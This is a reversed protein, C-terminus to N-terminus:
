FLQMKKIFANGYTEIVEDVHNKQVDSKEESKQIGKLVEASLDAKDKKTLSDKSIM